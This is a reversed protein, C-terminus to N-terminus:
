KSQIYLQCQKCRILEDNYVRELLLAVEKEEVGCELLKKAINNLSKCM